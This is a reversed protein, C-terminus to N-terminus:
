EDDAVEGANTNKKIFEIVPAPDKLGHPHHGKEEFIIQIDGGLKEFREKMIAGNEEYPVTSDKTGCRMLIPVGARALPELLDIPSVKAALAEEDSSFGYTKKLLKWSKANGDGNSHSGPVLKGAPWSHVNCVGNDVYISEVKEPNESAWRFLALTERSMSAMSLTKSFGYTQTLLDYAVDISENGKPHGSVDGPAKVVHYGQELLQLDGAVLRRVVGANGWFMSRWLWPKGPAAKKPCVVSITGKATPVEYREFGHFDTKRGSFQNVEEVAGPAPFVSQIAEFWAQAMTDNGTANPHLNDRRMNKKYENDLPTFQDVFFIKKGKARYSEVIGPISENFLVVNAREADSRRNPPISALFLTPDGVGPLAYIDDLLTSLRAPAGALEYGHGIDNTGLMILILEPKVSALRGSTWYNSLGSGIGGIRKRKPSFGQTILYGSFGSHYHYLNDAPSNGSMPLGESNRTHSGTYSFSYGNAKLLDYLSKRPSGSPDGDANSQTISDGIFWIAGLEQGALLEVAESAVGVQAQSLLLASTLVSLYTNKKFM